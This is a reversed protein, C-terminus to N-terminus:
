VDDLVAGAAGRKRAKAAFWKKSGPKLKGSIKLDAGRWRSATRAAKASLKPHEAKISDLLRGAAKDKSWVQGTTKGTPLTGPSSLGQEPGAWTTETTGGKHEGVNAPIFCCRCNPHRPLMGRAESVKLVIGELPACLECNHVLIGNAYFEHAGEVEIDYVVPQM